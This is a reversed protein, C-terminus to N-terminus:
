SGACSDSRGAFRGKGPIINGQSSERSITAQQMRDTERNKGGPGMAAAYAKARRSTMMLEGSKSSSGKSRSQLNEQSQMTSVQKRLNSSSGRGNVFFFKKKSKTPQASGSNMRKFEGGDEILQESSDVEKSISRDRGRVGMGM